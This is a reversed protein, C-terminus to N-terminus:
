INEELILEEATVDGEKKKTMGLSTSANDIYKMLM